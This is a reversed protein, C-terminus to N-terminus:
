GEYEKLEDNSQQAKYCMAAVQVWEAAAKLAHHYLGNERIEKEHLDNCKVSVWYEALQYKFEKSHEKAEEYEELIVAYSEHPSNPAKGFRKCPRQYAMIVSAQIEALLDKM